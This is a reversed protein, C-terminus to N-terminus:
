VDEERLNANSFHTEPLDIGQSGIEPLDIEKVPVGNETRPSLWDIVLDDGTIQVHISGLPEEEPPFNVCGMFAAQKNLRFQITNGERSQLMVSRATDLIQQERLLKHLTRLASPGGYAEIRDGRIDMMLGPFIKEVASAVKEVRETPRIIVYVSVEITTM